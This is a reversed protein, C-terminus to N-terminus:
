SKISNPDCYIDFEVKLCIIEQLMFKLLRNFLLCVSAPGLLWKSLCNYWGSRAFSLSPLLFQSQWWILLIIMLMYRAYRWNLKLLLTVFMIINSTLTSQGRVSCKINLLTYPVKVVVFCTLALITEVFRLKYVKWSLADGDTGGGGL